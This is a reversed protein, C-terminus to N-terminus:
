AGGKEVVSKAVSVAECLDCGCKDSHELEAEDILRQFADLLNSPEIAEAMARLGKALDGPELSNVRVSWCFDVTGSGVDIAPRSSDLVVDAAEWAAIEAASIARGFLERADHRAHIADSEILQDLTPFPSNGAAM